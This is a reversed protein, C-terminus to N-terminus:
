DNEAQMKKFYKHIIATDGEGLRLQRAKDVHNRTDKELFTLNEYGGAEIVISKFSQAM